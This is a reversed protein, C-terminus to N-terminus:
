ARGNHAAYISQVNLAPGGSNPADSASGLPDADSQREALTL